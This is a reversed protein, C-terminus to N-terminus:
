RGRSNVICRPNPCEFNILTVALGIGNAEDVMHQLPKGESDLRNPRVAAVFELGQEVPVNLVFPHPM